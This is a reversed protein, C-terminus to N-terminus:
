LERRVVAAPPELWLYCHERRSVEQRPQLSM